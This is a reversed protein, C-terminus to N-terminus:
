YFEGVVVCNNVVNIEYTHGSIYTPASGGGYLVGNPLSISCESGAVFRIAYEAVCGAAEAQTNFSVSMAQSVTGFVYMKYPDITVSAAVTGNVVPTANSAIMQTLSSVASSLAAATAIEASFDIDELRNSESNSRSGELAFFSGTVNRIKISDSFDSHQFDEKISM